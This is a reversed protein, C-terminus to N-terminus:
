QQMLDVSVAEVESGSNAHPINTKAMMFGIQFLYKDSKGYLGVIRGEPLTVLHYHGTNRGFLTSKNGKNTIFVM